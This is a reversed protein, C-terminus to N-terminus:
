VPDKRKAVENRAWICHVAEQNGARNKSLVPSNSNSGRLDRCGTSWIQGKHQHPWDHVHNKRRGDLQACAISGQHLRVLFFIHACFQVVALGVYQLFGLMRNVCCPKGTSCQFGGVRTVVILLLMNDLTPKLSLDYPAASRQPTPIAMLLLLCRDSMRTSAFNM